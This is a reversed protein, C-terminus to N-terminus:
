SSQFLYIYLCALLYFFFYLYSYIYIFYNLLKGEKARSLFLFTRLPTALAIYEPTTSAVAVTALAFAGALSHV